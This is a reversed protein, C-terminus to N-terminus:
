RKRVAAVGPSEFKLDCEGLAKKALCENCIAADAPLESASLYRRGPWTSCNSCFHWMYHLLSRRYEQTM